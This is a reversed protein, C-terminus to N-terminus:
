HGRFCEVKTQSKHWCTTQGALLKAPLKEETIKLEERFFSRGLNLKKEEPKV